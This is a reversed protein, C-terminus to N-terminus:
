VYLDKTMIVTDHLEGNKLYCKKHESHANFGNKESYIIINKWLKPISAMLKRAKTYNKVGEFFREALEYKDKRHDELIHAHMWYIHSTYPYVIFCCRNDEDMFFLENKVKFVFGEKSPGTDEHILPYISDDLLVGLIRQEDFVPELM